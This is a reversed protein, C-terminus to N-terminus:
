NSLVLITLSFAPITMVYQGSPVDSHGSQTKFNVLNTILQGYPSIKATVMNPSWIPFKVMHTSWIPVLITMIDGMHDNGPVLTGVTIGDEKGAKRINTMGINHPTTHVTAASDAIWINPDSLLM